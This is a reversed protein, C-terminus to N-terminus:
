GLVFMKERRFWRAALWFVFAATALTSASAIAIHRPDLAQEAVLQGILVMQGFVPVAVTFDTPLIPKFVLVMGPLAPVLPLLGLYIQAEKMSRTIVSISMQLAVAIVMLPVSIVLVTVFVSWAPPQILKDSGAVALAMFVKFAALNMCTTVVTFALAAGSKALLLVWREVPALLLPELSGREREGVTTDIALHVGGLFIMFIVLPPMMNYFFLAINADRAVNIKHLKIARAYDEPLGAAKARTAAIQDNFLTIINTLRATARLNEVRALNTIVDITFTDSNKAREPVVLVVPLHGDRVAANRQAENEPAPVIRINHAALHAALKPAHDMGLAPIDVTRNRFDTQLTKGAMYLGGAVLLPGLLPYILALALSRRDRSHDRMEKKFVIWLRMGWGTM